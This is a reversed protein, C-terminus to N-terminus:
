QRSPLQVQPCQRRGGQGLAGRLSDRTLRDSCFAAAHTGYHPMTPDISRVFTLGYGGRFCLIVSEAELCQSSGLASSKIARQAKRPFALSITIENLRAASISEVSERLYCHITRMIPRISRSTGAKRFAPTLRRQFGM